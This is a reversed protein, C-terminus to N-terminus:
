SSASRYSQLARRFFRRSIILMGVAAIMTWVIFRPEFARILTDAPVNVVVLVPVVFTFFMGFPKAWAGEYISRPYRMLTTFLWWMEMLNQNRVMWVAMSSLMLLFSYALACGCAFVAAFLVLRLPDFSWGMVALAVAMIVIGQVINPLTSWDIWRCSILFQEDIPKLLYADLNGSRVLEAFEICNSLFFTEVIGSLAYHCGVFFFYESRSWGGISSTNEFLKWYFVLLIGLWLIEVLLKVLFNARFAMESALGFRAFAVFLRFYRIMPM